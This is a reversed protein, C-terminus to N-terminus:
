KPQTSKRVKAQLTQALSKAFHPAQKKAWGDAGARNEHVIVLVQKERAFWTVELTGTVGARKWHWHSRKPKHEELANHFAFVAATQEIAQVVQAQELSAAFSDVIYVWM